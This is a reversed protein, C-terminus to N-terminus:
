GRQRRCRRREFVPQVVVRAVQEHGDGATPQEPETPVSEVSAVWVGGVGVCRCRDEVRVEGRGRCQEGPHEQVHERRALAIDGPHDVAHDRSEYSDSGRGTEDITERGDPDARDARHNGPHGHLVERAHVEELLDVVGQADHVRM